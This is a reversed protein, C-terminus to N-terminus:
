APSGLGCGWSDLLSEQPGGCLKGPLLMMGKVNFEVFAPGWHGERPATGTNCFAGGQPAVIPLDM